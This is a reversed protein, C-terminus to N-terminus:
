QFNIRIRTFASIGNAHTNGGYSKCMHFRPFTQQGAMEEAAVYLWLAEVKSRIFHCMASYVQHSINNIYHLDSEGAGIYPFGTFFHIPRSSMIDVSVIFAMGKYNEDGTDHIKQHLQSLFQFELMFPAFQSPSLHSSLQNKAALVKSHIESLSLLLV